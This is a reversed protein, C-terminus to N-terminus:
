ADMDGYFRDTGSTKCEVKGHKTRTMKEFELGVHHTVVDSKEYDYEVNHWIASVDKFELTYIKEGCGDLAILYYDDVYKDEGMKIVWDQADLNPATEMVFTDIQKQYFDITAKTVLYQLDPNKKPILLFRFTRPFIVTPSALAAPIGM